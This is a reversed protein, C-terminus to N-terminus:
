HAPVEVPLQRGQRRTKRSAKQLSAARQEVAQAARRLGRASTRAVIGPEYVTGDRWMAWLIGALRRAVAIIAIRGNRREAIAKAWCYLPDDTNNSRVILWAAQVLLARLYGNGQKTIAGLRRKTPGGSSNESPVLGLYSEVHHASNFRGADDIVSVFSAAVILGVGPTTALQNIVPEAACLEALRIETRDIQTNLLDLALALPDVLVRLEETLKAERLRTPFWPRSCASLRLGRERLLGRITVIYQARTEVLARRVGLQRRLEQRHPSLLHALPIGGREVARALVEADIRDTKRRHQGVGMQRSRTTDVLLVENGWETLRTHIFWAERCAEIAVRAPAAQPGLADELSGLAKVTLRAVVQGNAVECYSISRAGLDLAVNRMAPRGELGRGSQAKSRTPAGIPFGIPPLGAM